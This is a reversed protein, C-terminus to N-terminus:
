AGAPCRGSLPKDCGPDERARRNSWNRLKQTDTRPPPRLVPYVAVMIAEGTRAASPEDDSKRITTPTTTAVRRIPANQYPLRRAARRFFGPALGAAGFGCVAGRCSEQCVGSSSM